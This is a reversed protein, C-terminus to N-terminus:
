MINNLFFEIKQGKDWGYYLLADWLKSVCPEQFLSKHFKLPHKTIMLASNTSSIVELGPQGHFDRLKGWSM